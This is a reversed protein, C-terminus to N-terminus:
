PLVLRRSGLGAVLKRWFVRAAALHSVCAIATVLVWGMLPSALSASLGWVIRGIGAAVLLPGIGIALGLGCTALWAALVSRFRLSCYLGALPVSILPMAALFVAALPSLSVSRHWLLRVTLVLLLGMVVLTPLFQRLLAAWRGRVLQQAPIPTVLILELVGSRKEWQFSGAAAFAVGAQLAAFLWAQQALIVEVSRLNLFVPVQTIVAALCWGWGSLRASWQRAHLWGIPNVDLRRRQRSAFWRRGVLPECFDRRLARAEDRDATAPIARLRRGLLGPLLRAAAVTALALGVSNEVVMRALPAISGVPVGSFVHAESLFAPAGSVFIATGLLPSMLLQSVRSDALANTDELIGEGRWFAAAGAVALVVATLAASLVLSWALGTAWRRRWAFAVVGAIVGSGALTAANVLMFGPSPQPPSLSELSALLPCLAALVAWVWFFRWDSWRQEATPKAASLGSVPAAAALRNITVAAALFPMPALWLLNLLLGTEQATGGAGGLRAVQLGVQTALAGLAVVRIWLGVVARLRDTSDESEQWFLAIQRGAQWLGVGTAALAGAFLLGLKPLSGATQAIIMGSLWRAPLFLPPWLVVGFMTALLFNLPMVAVVAFLVAGMAARVPGTVLSSVVLGAALAIGFAGAHTVVTALVTRWGVGGLLVPLLLMPVLAILLTSGRLAQSIAKGLVIDRARLPTLLLLGLTGDRKEGSISDATLLPVCLLILHYAVVNLAEFLFEGLERGPRLPGSILLAFAAMVVAAGAVRVWYTAPQRSQAILERAIVPQVNM